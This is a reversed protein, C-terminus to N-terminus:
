HTFFKGCLTSLAELAGFKGVIKWIGPACLLGMAGIKKKACVLAHPAVGVCIEPPNTPYIELM